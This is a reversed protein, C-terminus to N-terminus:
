PGASVRRLAVSGDANGVALYRAQPSFAVRAPGGVGPGDGLSRARGATGGPLWLRLVGDSSALLVSGGPQFALGQVPAATPLALEQGEELDWVHVAGEVLPEVGHAAGAALRRGDLSFALSLVTDKRVQFTRVQRLTGADTV